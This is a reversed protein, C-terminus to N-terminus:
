FVKKVTETETDFVFVDKLFINDRVGGLIAIEHSNLPGFAASNRPTLLDTPLQIVKWSHLPGSETTAASLSAFSGLKEITNLFDDSDDRGGFVYASGSLSCASASVRAQNLESIEKWEDSALCYRAVSRTRKGSILLVYRDLVNTHAPWRRSESM